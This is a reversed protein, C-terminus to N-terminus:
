HKATLCCQQPCWSMCIQKCTEVCQGLFPQTRRSSGPLFSRIVPAIKETHPGSPQCYGWRKEKDFNPTTACWPRNNKPDTLCRSVAVGHFVFPLACCKGSYTKVCTSAPCPTQICTRSEVIPGKCMKGPKCFRTRTQTSRGCTAACPGFATWQTFNEEGKGPIGKKAAEM